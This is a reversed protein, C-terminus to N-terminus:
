SVALNYTEKRIHSLREQGNLFSLEIIFNFSHVEAKCAKVLEAAALATGGTALVDDHILVKDNPKIVGKQVEIIASGYELSYEQQYVDGPLKGKKRIPVFPIGLKMALPFGFYFGRSEISAICDPTNESYYEALHNIIETCLKHDRLVPNIDKFLIGPKPFDPVERVTSFIRKELEVRHNLITTNESM